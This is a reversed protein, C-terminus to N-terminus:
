GALAKKKRVDEALQFDIFWFIVQLAFDRDVVSVRRQGLVSLELAGIRYNFQLIELARTAAWVYDITESEIVAEFTSVCLAMMDAYREGHVVIAGQSTWCVDEPITCLASQPNANPILWQNGHVDDLRM